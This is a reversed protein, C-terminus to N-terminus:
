VSTGLLKTNKNIFYEEKRGDLYYILFMPLKSEEYLYDSKITALSKGYHSPELDPDGWFSSWRDGCCGCDLGSRCGDFYVGVEEARENAQTGSDAEVIVNLAPGSFLGGSNNQTYEFFM